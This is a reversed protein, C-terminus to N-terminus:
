SCSIDGGLHAEPLSFDQTEQEQQCRRAGPVDLSTGLLLIVQGGRKSTESTADCAFRSRKFPAQLKADKCILITRERELFLQFSPTDPGCMVHRGPKRAALPLGLHDDGGLNKGISRGGPLGSLFEPFFRHRDDNPLELPV